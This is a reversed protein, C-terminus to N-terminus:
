RNIKELSVRKVVAENLQDGIASQSSAGSTEGDYDIIITIPTPLESPIDSPTDSPIDSPNDSPTIDSTM